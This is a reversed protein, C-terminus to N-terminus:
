GVGGMSILRQAFEVGLRIFITERHLTFGGNITAQSM